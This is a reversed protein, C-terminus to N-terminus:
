SSVRPLPAFHVSFKFQVGIMYNTGAAEKSSNGAKIGSDANSGSGEEGWHSGRTSSRAPDRPDGPHFIDFGMPVDHITLLALAYDQFLKDKALRLYQKQVEEAGLKKGLLIYVAPLAVQTYLKCFELPDGNIIDSDDPDGGYFHPM